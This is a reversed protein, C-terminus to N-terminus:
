EHRLTRGIDRLEPKRETAEVTQTADLRSPPGVTLFEVEDRRVPLQHLRGNCGWAHCERSSGRHRQKWCCERWASAGVFLLVRDRAVAAEQDVLRHFCGDGRRDRQDQIPLGFGLGNEIRASVALISNILARELPQPNM